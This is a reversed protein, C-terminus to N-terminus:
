TVVIKIDSFTEYWSNRMVCSRIVESAFPEGLMAKERGQAMCISYSLCPFICVESGLVPGGLM